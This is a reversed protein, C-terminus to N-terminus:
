VLLSMAASHQSSRAAMSPPSNPRQSYLRDVDGRGPVPGCAMRSGHDQLQRVPQRLNVAEEANNDFWLHTIIKQKITM